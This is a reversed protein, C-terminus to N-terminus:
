TLGADGAEVASASITTNLHAWLYPDGLGNTYDVYWEAKALITRTKVLIPPDGQIVYENWPEFPNDLIYNTLEIKKAKQLQTRDPLSMTPNKKDGRSSFSVITQHVLAYHPVDSNRQDPPIFRDPIEIINTPIDAARITGKVTAHDIEYTNYQFKKIRFLKDTGDRVDFQISM